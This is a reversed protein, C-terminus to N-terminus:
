KVKIQFTHIVEDTVNENVPEVRIKKLETNFLQDIVSNGSSKIIEVGIALGNKDFRIKATVSYGIGKKKLEPPIKSQIDPFFITKRSRSSWKGGSLPDSKDITGENKGSVAADIDKLLEESERDELEKQMEDKTDKKGVDGAIKETEKSINELVKKESVSKEPKIEKIIEKATEKKELIRKATENHPIIKEKVVVKEKVVSKREKPVSSEMKPPTKIQENIGEGTAETNFEINVVTPMEVKQFPNKLFVFSFIIFLLLHAFVSILFSNKLDLEKM